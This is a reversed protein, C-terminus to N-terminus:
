TQYRAPNVAGVLDGFRRVLPQEVGCLQARSRLLLEAALVLREAHDFETPLHLSQAILQKIQDFSFHFFANARGPPSPRDPQVAALPSLLPEPSM